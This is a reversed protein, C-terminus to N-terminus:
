AVPDTSHETREAREKLARLHAEVRAELSRRGFRVLIVTWRDVPEIDGRPHGPHRGLDARTAVGM